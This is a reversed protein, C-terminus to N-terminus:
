QEMLSRRYETVEVTLVARIQRIKWELHWRDTVYLMRTEWGLRSDTEVLPIANEANQIEEALLEEMCDLITM